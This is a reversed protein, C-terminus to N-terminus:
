MPRKSGCREAIRYAPFDGRKIMEYVTFRTVKLLKAVEEPTYSLTEM